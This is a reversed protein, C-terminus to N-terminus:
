KRTIRKQIDNEKSVFGKPKEVGAKQHSLVAELGYELADCALKVPKSANCLVLAKLIM